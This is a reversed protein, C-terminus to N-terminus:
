KMVSAKILTVPLLPRDYDSANVPVRSITDVVDMGGIVHAFVTYNANLSASNDALNIFFQSTASNPASTKAMAVSGRVNSHTNPLEDQIAPVVIGKGSVDGGQVVFGAVVRHFITGDYAGRETLNQFNGSTLPKDAYLELYIKGASTQLLIQTPPTYAAPGNRGFAQFAVVVILVILVVAILAKMRGTWFGSGRKRRKSAM